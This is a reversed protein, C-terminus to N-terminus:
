GLRTYFKRWTWIKNSFLSLDNNRSDEEATTLSGRKIGGVFIGKSPEKFNPGQGTIRIGRDHYSKKDSFSSYMDSVNGEKVLQDSLPPRNSKSSVTKSPPAMPFSTTHFRHIEFSALFAALKIRLRHSCIGTRVRDFQKYFLNCILLSEISM